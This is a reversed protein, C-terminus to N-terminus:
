TNKKVCHLFKWLLFSNNKKTLFPHPANEFYDIVIKNNNLGTVRYYWLNDRYHKYVKGVGLFDVLKDLIFIKNDDGKQAIDFLFGYGNNSKSFSVHFCGEADTFGLIM